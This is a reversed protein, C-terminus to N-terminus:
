LPERLNYTTRTMTELPMLITHSTPKVLQVPLVRSVPVVKYVLQAQYVLRGKHAKLVLKVKFVKPV